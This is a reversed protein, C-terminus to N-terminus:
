KVRALTLIVDKWKMFVQNEGDFNWITEAKSKLYHGSGTLEALSFQRRQTQGDLTSAVVESGSYQITMGLYKKCDPPVFTKSNSSKCGVAEWKGILRQKMSREESEINRGWEDLKNFSDPLKALMYYKRSNEFFSREDLNGFEDRPYALLEREKRIAEVLDCYGGGGIINRCSEYSLSLIYEDKSKSIKHLDERSVVPKRDQLAKKHQCIRTDFAIDFICVENVTNRIYMVSLVLAAILLIGFGLVVVGFPNANIPQQTQAKRQADQVKYSATLESDLRNVGSERQSSASASINNYTGDTNRDEM